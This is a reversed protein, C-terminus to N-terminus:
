GADRVDTVVKDGFDARNLLTLIQRAADEPSSLQGEDKLAQFRERDPFDAGRIAEQMGTDVVGPAISAIRVGDHREAALATAHMDVAAKTACYTSWTPYPRRGAGSSIHAIRLPVGAPRANLVADTLLLPATINVNIAQEIEALEQRGAFAIPGVTGANNILILDTADALFGSLHGAELWDRVAGPSALDVTAGASRSVGLVEYGSAELQAALAAGLGKSHGTIIAKKTM